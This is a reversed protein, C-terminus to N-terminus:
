TMVCPKSGSPDAPPVTVISCTAAPSNIPSPSWSGNQLCAFRATGITAQSNVGASSATSFTLNSYSNSTCTNAGVTWTKSVGSSPCLPSTAICDASSGTSTQCKWTYNSAFPSSTTNAVTTVATATGATCLESTPASALVKSHSSGCQAAGIPCAQTNCAQTTSGMCNTGGNAPAPATCTRSQTGGGCTVSCASFATWQGNVPSAAMIKNASCTTASTGGNSGACTWTWKTAGDTITSPTGSACLEGTGPPNSSARTTGDIPSCAGDIRTATSVVSCTEPINEAFKVTGNECYINVTGTATQSSDILERTQHNEIISHTASCRTNGVEWGILGSGCAGPISNNTASSAAATQSSPTGNDFGNKSCNQFAIILSFLFGSIFLLVPKRLIPFKTKISKIFSSSNM